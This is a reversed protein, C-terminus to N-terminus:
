FIFIELFMGQSMTACLFVKKNTSSVVKKVKNSLGQKDINLNARGIKLSEFVASHKLNKRSGNARKLNFICGLVLGFHYVDKGKSHTILGKDILEIFTEGYNERTGTWDILGVKKDIAKKLSNIIGNIKKASLRKKVKVKKKRKNM